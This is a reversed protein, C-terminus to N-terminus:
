ADLASRTRLQTTGAARIGAPKRTPDAVESTRTSALVALAGLQPALRTRIAALPTESADRGTAPRVAPASM